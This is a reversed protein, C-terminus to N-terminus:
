EWEEIFKIIRKLSDQRALECEEPYKKEAPIIRKFQFKNKYQFASFLNRANSQTDLNMIRTVMLSLMVFKM